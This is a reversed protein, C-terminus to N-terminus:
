YITFEFTLMTAGKEFAVEQKRQLDVPQRCLKWKTGFKRRMMQVQVISQSSNNVGQFVLTPINKKPARGRHAWIQHGCTNKLRPTNFGPVPNKM